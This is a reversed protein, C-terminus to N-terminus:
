VTVAFPHEAVFLTTTVTLGTGFTAIGAFWVNHTPAAVDTVNVLGNFTAPVTYEQDFVLVVVPRAAEPVPLIADKVVVFVVFAAM